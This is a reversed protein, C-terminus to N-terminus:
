PTGAHKHGMITIYDPHSAIIRHYLRENSIKTNCDDFVNMVDDGAKWPCRQKWELGEEHLGTVSVVNKAFSEPHEASEELRLAGVNNVRPM